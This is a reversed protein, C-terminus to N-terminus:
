GRHTSGTPVPTAEEIRRLYMSARALARTNAQRGPGPSKTHSESNACLKIHVATIEVQQVSSCRRSRGIEHRLALERKSRGESSGNCGPQSTDDCSRRETVM